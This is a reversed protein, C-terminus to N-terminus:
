GLVTDSEEPIHFGHVGAVVHIDICIPKYLYDLSAGDSKTNEDWCLAINCQFM